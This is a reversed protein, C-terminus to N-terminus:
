SSPHPKLLLFRHFCPPPRWSMTCHDIRVVRRHLDVIFLFWFNNCRITWKTSVCVREHWSFTKKSLTFHSLTHSSKADLENALIKTTWCPCHEKFIRFRLRWDHRSRFLCAFMFGNSKSVSKLKAVGAAYMVTWSIFCWCTVTLGIM